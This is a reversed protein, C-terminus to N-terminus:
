FKAYMHVYYQNAQVFNGMNLEQDFYNEHNLNPEHLSYIITIIIHMPFINM